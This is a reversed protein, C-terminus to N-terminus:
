PRATHWVGKVGDGTMDGPQKDKIWLYLPQGKYAVQMTGDDRQILSYNKPLDTGAAATLPPWNVACQDYCNSKGTEDKDFTYLTMKNADMLFTQDGLKGTLVPADGAAAATALACAMLTSITLAFSTRTM